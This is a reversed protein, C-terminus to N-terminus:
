PALEALGVPYSVETALIRRPEKLVPFEQPRFRNLSELTKRTWENSIGHKRAEALTATYSEVARDELATTQQALLDQYQIVADEGLAQV